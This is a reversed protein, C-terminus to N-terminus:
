CARDSILFVSQSRIRVPAGFIAAGITGGPVLMTPFWNLKEAERMFALAEDGVGLFFVIEAGAQKVQEVSKSQTSVAPLTNLFRRYLQALKRRRIKSQKLLAQM